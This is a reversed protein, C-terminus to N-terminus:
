GRFECLNGHKFLNSYYQIRARGHLSGQHELSELEKLMLNGINPYLESQQYNKVIFNPQWHSFEQSVKFTGNKKGHVIRIRVSDPILPKKKKKLYEKTKTKIKTRKAPGKDGKCVVKEVFM